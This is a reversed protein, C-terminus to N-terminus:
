YLLKQVLLLYIIIGKATRQRDKKEDEWIEHMM